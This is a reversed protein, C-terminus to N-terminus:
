PVPRVTALAIEYARKSRMWLVPDASKPLSLLTVTFLLTGRRVAGFRIEADQGMFKANALSISSLGKVRNISSDNDRAWKTAPVVGAEQLEEVAVRELSDSNPEQADGILTAKVRLYSLMRGGSSLVIDIGSKGPLPKAVENSVWSAPYAVRFRPEGGSYELLPELRSPGAPHLLNFSNTAISIDRLSLPYRDARVMAVVAFIRGGDAHVVIRVVHQDTPPGYLGGADVVSGCAFEYEECSVLKTKFNVALFEMWDRLAVEFPLRTLYVQVIAADPSRKELFLGIRMLQAFGAPQSGLDKEMAWTKPLVLSFAASSDADPTFRVLNHTKELGELNFGTVPFSLKVDAM